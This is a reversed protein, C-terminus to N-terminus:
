MERMLANIAQAAFKKRENEPLDAGMDKIAQVRMMLGEMSEVKIEDDGDEFDGFDGEEGDGGGHEIAMRLGLMERELEQVEQGFGRTRSKSGSLLGAELDDDFDFDLEQDADPDRLDGPGTWDHTELVEKIRPMGEFEGFKNKTKEGQGKPDWEVVEWGICGLDFLMDEWWSASFPLDETGLDEDDLGLGMEDSDRAGASTSTSAPMESKPAGVLVFIGSVDGGIGGREEDIREKVAGIDRMLDLVARVDARSAPDSGPRPDTESPNKVCVLLAGVADRVVEAEDSLFETRWQQVSTDTSTQSPTSEENGPFPVEDVWIPIEASYYKTNLRLPSHTTYGAFSTITDPPVPSTTDEDEPPTTSSSAEAPPAQEQQPLDHVPVDTLALLLPPIISVSQAPPALILLRRSNTIQKVKPKSPIAPSAKSAM